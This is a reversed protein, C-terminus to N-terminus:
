SDTMAEEVQKGIWLKKGIEKLNEQEEETLGLKHASNSIDRLITAIADRIPQPYKKCDLNIVEGVIGRLLNAVQDASDCCIIVPPIEANIQIPLEHVNVIVNNDKGAIGVELPLGTGEYTQLLEILNAQNCELAIRGSDTEAEVKHLGHTDVPGRGTLVMKEAPRVETVRIIQKAM